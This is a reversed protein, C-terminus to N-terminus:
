EPPKVRQIGIMRALRGALLDKGFREWFGFCSAPGFDPHDGYPLTQHCTLLTERDRNAKVIEALRGPELHMPNGPRFVCTSCMESLVRCLGTVPDRTDGPHTVPRGDRGLGVM